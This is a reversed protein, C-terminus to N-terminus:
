AKPFSPPLPIRASGWQANGATAITVIHAFTPKVKMKILAASWDSGVSTSSADSTSPADLKTRNRWIVSGNSDGIMKKAAIM